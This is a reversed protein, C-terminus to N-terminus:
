KFLSVRSPFLANIFLEKRGPSPSLLVPLSPPIENEIFRLNEIWIVTNGIGYISNFLFSHETTSLRTTTLLFLIHQVTHHTDQQKTYSFTPPIKIIISPGAPDHCSPFHSITAPAGPSSPTCSSPTSPTTVRRETQDKRLIADMGSALQSISAWLPSHSLGSGMPGLHHSM